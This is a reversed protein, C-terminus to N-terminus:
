QVGDCYLGGAPVCLSSAEYGIALSLLVSRGLRSDPTEIVPINDIYWDWDENDWFSFRTMLAKLESDTLTAPSSEQETPSQQQPVLPKEAVSDANTPDPSAEARLSVLSVTAIAITLAAITLHRAFSRHFRMPHAFLRGFGASDATRRQRAKTPQLM